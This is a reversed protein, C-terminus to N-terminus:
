VHRMLIVRATTEVCLSFVVDQGIVREFGGVLPGGMAVMCDMQAVVSVM